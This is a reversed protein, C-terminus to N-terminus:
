DSTSTVTVVEGVPGYHSSNFSVTVTTVAALKPAGPGARSRHRSAPSPRPMRTMIVRGPNLGGDLYSTLSILLRRRARLSTSGGAHSLSVAVTIM